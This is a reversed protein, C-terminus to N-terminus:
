STYVEVNVAGALPTIKLYCGNFFHVPKPFLIQKVRENTEVDVADVFTIQPILRKGSAESANDYLDVWGGAAMLASIILGDLGGEGKRIVCSSTKQGSPITVNIM